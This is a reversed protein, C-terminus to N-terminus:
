SSAKEPHQRKIHRKLNFSDRFSMGCECVKKRKAANATDDPASIPQVPPGVTTNRVPDERMSVAPVAITPVLQPAKVSPYSAGQQRKLVEHDQVLHQYASHLQAYQGRLVEYSTQLVVLDVEKPMLTTSQHGFQMLFRALPLPTQLPASRARAVVLGLGFLKWLCIVNPPPM